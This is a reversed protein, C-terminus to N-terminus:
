ISDLFDKLTDFIELLTTVISQYDIAIWTKALDDFPNTFPQSNFILKTFLNLGNKIVEFFFDVLPLIVYPMLVNLLFSASIVTLALPIILEIVMLAYAMNFFTEGSSGVLKALLFTLFVAILTMLYIRPVKGIIMDIPNLSAM